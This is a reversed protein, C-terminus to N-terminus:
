FKLIDVQVEAKGGLKDVAGKLDMERLSRQAGLPDAKPTREKGTLPDVVTEKGMHFKVPDDDGPTLPKLDRKWSTANSQVGEEALRDDVQSGGNKSAAAGSRVLASYPSLMDGRSLDNPAPQLAKAKSLTSKKERSKTKAKAQSKAKPKAKTMVTTSHAARSLAHTQPDVAASTAAQSSQACWAATPLGAFALFLSLALPPLRRM